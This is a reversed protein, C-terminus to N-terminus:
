DAPANGGEGETPDERFRRDEPMSANWAEILAKRVLPFNEMNQLIRGAERLTMKPHALRLGAYLLGRYQATNAGHMFVRGMGQLLNCGPVEIEVDAISNLDYCLRYTEVPGGEVSAVKLEVFEIVPDAATGAVSKRAM